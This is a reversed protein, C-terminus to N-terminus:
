FSITRKLSFRVREKTVEQHTHCYITNGNMELVLEYYSGCFISEKLFAEYIGNECLEIDEARAYISGQIHNIKGLFNACYLNAPKQYVEKPTGVQLIDGEKMIAIRDSLFFADEKDHTVLLATMNFKKIMMKLEDRLTTRLETDINSLPEDLLLITPKHIIARALAVRQQQGGSIEHPYKDKLELLNTKTLIEDIAQTSFNGGFAINSGISLHPLLAYNQFVIAVGRQNPPLNLSPTFVAKDNIYIAGSDPSELGCLMRLLTTKGSGSKGLITLIEGKYIELNIDNAICVDNNCFSKKLNNITVISNM